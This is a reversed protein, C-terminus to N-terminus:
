GRPGCTLDSPIEGEAVCKIGDPAFCACITHQSVSLEANPSFYTFTDSNVEKLPNDTADLTILKPSNNTNPINDLNNSSLVITKANALSDFVASDLSSLENGNLLLKQISPLNDFCSKSITELRNNALNLTQLKPLNKLNDCNLTVLNNGSFSLLRLTPLNEFVGNPIKNLKNGDLPIDDLSPLGHFIGPPLYKIDNLRLVVKKLNELGQFLDAPLTTLSNNYFILTKLNTLGRFVDGKLSTLKNRKIMFFDLSELGDFLGVPLTPFDNDNLNLRKLRILGQFFKTDLTTLNNRDFRLDELHVMGHLLRAPLSRIWNVSLYLTTLNPVYKFLDERIGLLGLRNFKLNLYELNPLNQFYEPQLEFLHWGELYLARLHLGTLTESDVNIVNYQYIPDSLLMGELVYNKNFLYALEDFSNPYLLLETKTEILGSEQCFLNAANKNVGVRHVTVNCTPPFAFVCKGDTHSWKSETFTCTAIRDYGKGNDCVPTSSLLPSSVGPNFEPCTDEPKAVAVEVITVDYQNHLQLNLQLYENTFSVHCGTSGGHRIAVFKEPCELNENLREVYITDEEPIGNQTEIAIANGPISTSIRVSCTQVDKYPRITVFGQEIKTDDIDCTQVSSDDLFALSGHWRCPCVPLIVYCHLHGNFNRLLRGNEYVLLTM